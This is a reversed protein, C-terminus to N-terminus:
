RGNCDKQVEKSAAIFERSINSREMFPDTEVLFEATNRAM